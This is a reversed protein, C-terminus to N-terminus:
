RQLEERIAECEDEIAQQMARAARNVLDNYTFASTKEPDLEQLLEDIFDSALGWVSPDVPIVPHPM